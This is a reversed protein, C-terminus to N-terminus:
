QNIIKMWNNFKDINFNPNIDTSDEIYNSRFLVGKFKASDDHYSHFEIINKPINFKDCLFNVLEITSYFQKSYINEWYRDGMWKYDVVNEDDCVENVWNIHKNNKKLLAGMNELIISISQKDWDKKNLFDTYYIPNYHEYIVGERSITYTNWKKSEGYEKHTLRKYFYDNKRLSFAIVIQKKNPKSKYHNKTKIKRTKKDIELM